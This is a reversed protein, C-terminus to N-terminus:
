SCSCWIIHQLVIKSLKPVQMLNIYGFEEFLSNMVRDLYDKNIRPQYSM